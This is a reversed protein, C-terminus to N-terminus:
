KNRVIYVIELNNLNLPAEVGASAFMQQEQQEVSKIYAVLLGKPFNGDLGSTFLQEGITLTTGASVYALEMSGHGRGKVVGRFRGDESFVDVGSAADDILLVTANGSGVAIVQGILANGSVVAQGIEIEADWGRDIIISRSLAIGSYGIVNAAIGSLSSQKRFELLLALQENEKKLSQLASNQETLISLKKQLETNERKVELLSFYNEYFDSVSGFTYSLASLVPREFGTIVLNGLKVFQPHHSSYASLLLGILILVSATIANTRRSEAELSM